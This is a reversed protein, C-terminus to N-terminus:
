STPARRDPSDVRPGRPPEDLPRAQYRAEVHGIERAIEYCHWYHEDASKPMRFVQGKRHDITIACPEPRPPASLGGRTRLERIAAPFDFPSEVTWLGRKREVVRLAELEVGVELPTQFFVYPRSVLDFEFAARLLSRAAPSTGALWEAREMVFSSLLRDFDLRDAHLVAHVLAGRWRHHGLQEFQECGERWRRVVPGDPAAPLWRWFADVVERLPRLGLAGLLQMSLYLGRCDHLLFVGTAFKLGEIYERHGVERTQIVVEASSAPDDERLTVVGLEDTRAQYGVNNLWLLPYISFAQAGAACLDDIGQKFSELTEGPLPWILEVLSAVGWENLRRQLGLYTETKINDRKATALAGHDMSQLSIPQSVLLGEQAFIRSVEEVRDSNNKASNFIVRTPLRHDRNLRAIHEAIERDRPLIGFNADTLALTKVRHRVIYDLEDKIRDIGLRHIKQGIAGGWYCFECAFPCGRNTEFLAVEVGALDMAGTLWPSPVQDLDQIRPRAETTIWGGDRYFSLGKVQELAPRVEAYHRLYDAFTHEGEGNCVAVDEWGAAVHKQGSHMVEVGGLLFQTRGGLLGRLAPLVRQVIGANWTYTSFGVVQPAKDVLHRMLDSLPARVYRSYIEIDWNARLDPDAEACAKLYGGALPSASPMADFHVLTARRRMM